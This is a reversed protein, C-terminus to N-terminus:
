EVVEDISQYKTPKVLELQPVAVNGTIKEKITQPITKKKKPPTMIQDIFYTGSIAFITAVGISALFSSPSKHYFGFSSLVVSWAAAIPRLASFRPTLGAGTSELLRDEKKERYHQQDKFKHGAYLASLLMIAGLTIGDSNNDRVGFSLDYTGGVLLSAVMASDMSRTLNYKNWGYEKNCYQTVTEYKQWIAKDLETLKDVLGM